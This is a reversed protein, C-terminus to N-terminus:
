YKLFYNMRSVSQFNYILSMMTKRLKGGGGGWGMSRVTNKSVM